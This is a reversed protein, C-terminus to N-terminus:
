ASEEGVSETTQESTAEASPQKVDVQNFDRKRKLAYAVLLACVIIGSAIALVVAFVGSDSAPSAALSCGTLSYPGVVRM